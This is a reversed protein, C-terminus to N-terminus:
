RPRTIMKFRMGRAECFAEGAALKRKTNEEELLNGGKVEHLEKLGDEREVVFDPNYFGRRGDAKTYPIRLTRCREWRRILPNSDLVLM